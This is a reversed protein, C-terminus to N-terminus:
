QRRVRGVRGRGAHSVAELLSNENESQCRKGPLENTVDLRMMETAADDDADDIIHRGSAHRV